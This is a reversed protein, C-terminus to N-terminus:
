KEIVKPIRRERERERKKKKKRKQPYFKSKSISYGIHVDHQIIAKNVQKCVYTEDYCKDEISKSFDYIYIYIYVFNLYLM